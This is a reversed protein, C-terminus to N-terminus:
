TKTRQYIPVIKRLANTMLVYVNPRIKSVVSAIKLVYIKNLIETLNFVIYVLTHNCSSKYNLLDFGTM